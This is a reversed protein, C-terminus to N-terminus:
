NWGLDKILRLHYTFWFTNQIYEMKLLQGENCWINAAAVASAYIAPWLGNDIWPNRAQETNINEISLMQM